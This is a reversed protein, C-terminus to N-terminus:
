AEGVKRVQNDLWEYEEWYIFGYEDVKQKADDVQMVPPLDYAALMWECEQKSMPAEPKFCWGSYSDSGDEHTFEHVTYYVDGENNPNKYYHKIVRHHWYFDSM